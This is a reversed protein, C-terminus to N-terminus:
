QEHKGDNQIEGKKGTNDYVSVYNFKQLFMVLKIEVSNKDWM